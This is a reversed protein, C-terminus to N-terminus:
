KSNDLMNNLNAPLSFQARYNCNEHEAVIRIWNLQLKGKMVTAIQLKPLWRLNIQYEVRLPLCM